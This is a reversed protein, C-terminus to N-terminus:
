QGSRGAVLEHYREELAEIGAGRASDLVSVPGDYVAEGECLVLMNQALSVVDEILHTSIVVASSDLTAITQRFSSRQEPDLGATPEDLVILRPDGAIAAAIGARQRKGGSLHRIAMDACDELGVRAVAQRVAHIREARPVRRTWLTYDILEHVTLAGDCTWGQPLYGIHRRIDALRRRALRTGYFTLTGRTPPLVTTLTQLLTSKGAGNPGVIATVAGDPVTWSFSSLVHHRGYGQSIEELVIAPQTPSSSPTM